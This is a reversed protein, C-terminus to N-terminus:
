RSKFLGFSKEEGHNVYHLEYINNLIYAFDLESERDKCVVLLLDDMEVEFDDEPLLYERNGRILMLFLINNNEKYNSRSKKLVGLTVKEEKLISLYLAYAERDNIEIECLYPEYGMKSVIRNVLNKGWKEDKSNILRIFRNALPMALYNYIKDSVIDELIYNRDIGAADFISIDEVENERAITYIDPNLKKALFIVALNIMDDSTAAIIISAEEIKAEILLRQIEDNEYRNSNDKDSFIENVDIFHYPLKSKKLGSELAKGMRGYGYVICKGKPIKEDTTLELSRGHVWLELLWIHPATLALYFRNAIIKFPNEIHELGLSKLYDSNKLSSSRVFLSVESNLYQCKMAITTNKYDNEFVVVAARCNPLLLGAMKLVDPDLVNASLTPIYPHHNELMLADIKDQNKDIVVMRHGVKQLKEILPKTVHNYGFILIFPEKINRVSKVFNSRAIELALVKDQMLAVISGVGYFWGVVTIYICFSVWLKQQYTFDYPSEGFGITSAMYSVFYFADFFNLNYVNGDNDVGPILVMGLISISFTLIIILFPLRLRRIVIWASLNNM